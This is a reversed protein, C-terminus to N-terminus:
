KVSCYKFLYGGLLTRRVQPNGHSQIVQNNLTILLYDKIKIETYTNSGDVGLGTVVTRLTLKLQLTIDPTNQGGPDFSFNISLDSHFLM